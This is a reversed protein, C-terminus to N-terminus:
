TTLVVCEVQLADLFVQFVLNRHLPRFLFQKKRRFFAPRRRWAPSAAGRFFIAPAFGAWFAAAAFTGGAASASWRGM